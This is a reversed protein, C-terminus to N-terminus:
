ELGLGAENVLGSQELEACCHISASRQLKSGCGESSCRAQFPTRKHAQYRHSPNLPEEKCPLAHHEASETAM